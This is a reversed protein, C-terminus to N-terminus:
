QIGVGLVMINDKYNITKTPTYTVAVKGPSTYYASSLLASNNLM